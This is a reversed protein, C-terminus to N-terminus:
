TWGDPDWPKEPPKAARAAPERRAAERREAAEEEAEEQADLRRQLPTRPAMKQRYLVQEPGGEIPEGDWGYKKVIVTLNNRDDDDAPPPPDQPRLAGYKRPSLKGAHWRLHKLKVDTLYATEPTAGEALEWGKEFFGEAAIERALGVAERFDEHKAMWRYVTSPVPLTPDERCMRVLGEGACLRQFIIEATERCYTTSQGVLSRGGAERAAMMAARFDPRERIWRSVITPSPMQPGRSIALLTEGAATRRVIEAGTASPWGRWPKPHHPSAPVGDCAAGAGAPQTTEDTM